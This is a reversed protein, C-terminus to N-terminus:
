RPTWWSGWLAKEALTSGLQTAGLLYQHTPNNRGLVKCKKVKVFNRKALNEQRDPDRWIVACGDPTSAVLLEEQNWITQM